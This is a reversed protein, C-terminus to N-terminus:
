TILIEFNGDGVEEPNNRLKNEEELQALVDAEAAAANAAAAENHAKAAAEADAREAELRAKHAAEQIRKAEELTIQNAIEEDAAGGTTGPAFLTQAQLDPLPPSTDANQRNNRKKGRRKGASRSGGGGGSGRGGEQTGASNPTFSM